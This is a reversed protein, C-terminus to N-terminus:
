AAIGTFSMAALIDAQTRRRLMPAATPKATNVASSFASILLLNSFIGPNPSTKSTGLLESPYLRKCSNGGSRLAVTNFAKAFEKLTHIAKESRRLLMTCKASRCSQQIMPALRNPAASNTRREAAERKMEILALEREPGLM